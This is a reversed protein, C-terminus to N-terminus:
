AASGRRRARHRLLQQCTVEEGSQCTLCPIVTNMNLSDRARRRIISSTWSDSIYGLTIRIALVISSITSHGDVVFDTLVDFEGCEAILEETGTEPELRVLAPTSEPKDASAVGGLAFLVVATAALTSLMITCKM